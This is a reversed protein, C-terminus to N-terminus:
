PTLDLDVVGEIKWVDDKLLFKWANTHSVHQSNQFVVRWPVIAARKVTFNANFLIGVLFDFPQKNLGRLAGLQRSGNDATVRRAKVEYRKGDKGRVDFSKNSKPQLEGQLAACALREAYDGVPNNKSRVIERRRLEEIVDGYLLLLELTAKEALNTM